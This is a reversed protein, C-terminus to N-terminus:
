RICEMDMLVWRLWLQKCVVSQLNGGHQETCQRLRSPFATMVRHLMGEPIGQICRLIQQKLGSIITPRTEYVKSTVYGWLFNPWALPHALYIERFSFHAQGIVNDQPSAHFYTSQLCTSRRTPVAAFKASSVTVWQASINGARIQAQRCECNSYPGEYEWFILSWYHWSFLSWM